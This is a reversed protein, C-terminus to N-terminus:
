AVRRQRNWYADWRDNLDLVRLNLTAQAGRRTWRMGSRKLRQNAVRKCASEVIGSGIHLGRRRYQHYKMRSRNSQFYALNQRVTEAAEPPPRLRRLSRFAAELRGARLRAEQRQVWAKGPPAGSGFVANAVAWLHESLHYWDLIPTAKPFHMAALEWVWPAGDGLVVVEEAHAAGRHLAEVYLRRGFAEYPRQVVGVYTIRGARDVGERDRGRTDYVAEIRTERWEDTLRTKCGDLAVYLRSPKAEPLVEVQDEFVAQV